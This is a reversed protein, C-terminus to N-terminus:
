FNKLAITMGEATPLLIGTYKQPDALRQNFARMAQLATQRVRDPLAERWVADFLLTNDGVILGGKRIHKEAWDLYHLYHLKDADIFIMDFPSKSELSRLSELADGTMLTIKPHHKLNTAARAARTADKECTYVHGDAPLAEAMWLASYGSLTGIEVVTRVGALKILLQLLKGEEPHISIQDNKDTTSERVAKLQPTEPAFLHRIYDLRDQYQM